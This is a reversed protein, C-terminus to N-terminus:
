QKCKEIEALKAIADKNKKAAAEKYLLLALDMDDKEKITALRYMAKSNKADAAKLLYSMGLAENKEVDSGDLYMESLKYLARPSGSEIFWKQAEIPDKKVGKGELYMLGLNTMGRSYGNEASRKFWKFAEEFNQPVGNGFDYMVGINCQAKANGANGAKIYWEAARKKDRECGIGIALLYGANRMGSNNGMEAARIFLGLAMKKEEETGDVFIDGLLVMSDSCRKEINDLLIFKINENKPDTKWLALAKEFKSRVFSNPNVSKSPYDLM